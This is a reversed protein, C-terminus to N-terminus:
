LPNGDIGILNSPKKVESPEIPLETQDKAETVGWYKLELKKVVEEMQEKGLFHGVDDLSVFGLKGLICFVDRLNPEKEHDAVMGLLLGFGTGQFSYEPAAKLKSTKVRKFFLVSGPGLMPAKPQSM